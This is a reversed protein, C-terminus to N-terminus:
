ENINQFYAQLMELCREVKVPQREKKLTAAYLVSSPLDYNPLVEILEGSQLYPKADLAMLRVLGYGQLAMTTAMMVNNTTFRSSMKIRTKKNSDHEAFDLLHGDKMLEIGIFLHSSLDKPTQIPEHKNLYSPSAVLVQRM